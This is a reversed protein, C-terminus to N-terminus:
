FHYALSLRFARGLLPRAIFTNAGADANQAEGQRPNGETLGLSNTVNDVYGYLDFRDTISFRASANLTDYHPLVVSNAMDVYRAGEYEWAVQLRLRRDFLNVGPVVRISAKPVRILQNGDWNRQVPKGGVNDTFILGSYKPQELTANFTLDFWEIPFLGAELELGYTHTNAYQTQQVPPESTNLNFVNNTYGVNNYQTWFATAYVDTWPNAYKYGIEGLDM